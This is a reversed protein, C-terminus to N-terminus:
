KGPKKPSEKKPKDEPIAVCKDADFITGSLKECEERSLCKLDWGASTHTNYYCCIQNPSCASPIIESKKDTSPTNQGFSISSFFIFSALILINKM